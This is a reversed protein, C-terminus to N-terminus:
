GIGRWIVIKEMFEIAKNKESVETENKCEFIEEMLKGTEVNSLKDIVKTLNGINLEVDHSKFNIEFYKETM